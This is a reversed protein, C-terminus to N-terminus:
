WISIEIMQTMDGTHSWVPDTAHAALHNLYSLVVSQMAIISIDPGESSWARNCWGCRFGWRKLGPITVTGPLLALIADLKENVTRKDNLEGDEREGMKIRVSLM